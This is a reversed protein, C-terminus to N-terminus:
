NYIYLSLSKKDALKKIQRFRDKKISKTYIM